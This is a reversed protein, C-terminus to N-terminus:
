PPYFLDQKALAKLFDNIIVGPQLVAEKAENEIEAIYLIDASGSELNSADELYGLIQDKDRKIIM